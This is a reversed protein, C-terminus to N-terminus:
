GPCAVMLSGIINRNLFPLVSELDMGVGVAIHHESSDGQEEQEDEAMRYMMSRGALRLCNMLLINGAM